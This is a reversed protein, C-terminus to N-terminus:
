VQPDEEAEKRVQFLPVNSLVGGGGCGRPLGHLTGPRPGLVQGIGPERVELWPVEPVSRVGSVRSARVRLVSIIVARLVAFGPLWSSHCSVWSAFFVVINLPPLLWSQGQVSMICGTGEGVGEDGARAQPVPHDSSWACPACAPVSPVARHADPPVPDSGPWTGRTAM